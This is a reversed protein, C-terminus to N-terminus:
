GGVVATVLGDVAAAFGFENPDAFRTFHALLVGYLGAVAGATVFAVMRYRRSTSAWPAPSRARGRPDGRARPGAPFRALRWFWYAVLGARGLGRRTSSSPPLVPGPRRRDLVPQHLLIRVMEAFALTAIALFVGRLRIVPLGLIVAAIAGVAMGFVIASPWRRSSASCRSRASRHPVRHVRRALGARAPRPQAPRGPARRLLSLRPHRRPRGPHDLATYEFM